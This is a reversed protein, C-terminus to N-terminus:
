PRSRLCEILHLVRPHAGSLAAICGPCSTVVTAARAYDDRREGALDRALSPYTFAAGFGCCDARPPEVLAAGADRLARRPADAVGMGYRLHCPDHYVVPGDLGAISLAAGELLESIDRVPPLKAPSGRLALACTPCLTAISEVDLAGLMRANQEGKRRAQDDLGLARLPAGCCAEGGPIVVEYGSGALLAIMKEGLDPRLYLAACGLFVGVRGRRAM